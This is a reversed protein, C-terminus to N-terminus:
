KLTRITTDDYPHEFSGDKRSIYYQLKFSQQVLISSQLDKEKKRPTTTHKYTVVKSKQIQFYSCSLSVQMCSPASPCLCCWNQLYTRLFFFFFVLSFLGYNWTKIFCRWSFSASLPYSETEVNFAQKPMPVRLIEEVMSLM